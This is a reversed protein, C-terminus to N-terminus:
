NAPQTLTAQQRVVQTQSLARGNMTTSTLLKIDTKALVVGELEVFRHGKIRVKPLTNSFVRAGM